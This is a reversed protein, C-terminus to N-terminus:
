EPPPAPLHPGADLTEALARVMRPYNVPYSNLVRGGEAISVDHRCAPCHYTRVRSEEGPAGHGHVVFSGTEALEGPCDRGALGLQDRKLAERHTM